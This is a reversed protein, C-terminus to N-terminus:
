QQLRRIKPARGLRKIENIKRKERNISDNLLIAKLYKLGKGEYQYGKVLYRDIERRLLTDEVASVGKLFFFKNATSNDSPINQSVKRFLTDISKKTASSRTNKLLLLKASYNYTKSYSWGCVPCAKSIKKM